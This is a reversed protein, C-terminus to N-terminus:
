NAGEILDRAVQPSILGAFMHMGILEIVVHGRTGDHKGLDSVFSTVAGQPDRPLYELARAKAWNLHTDRATEEAASM